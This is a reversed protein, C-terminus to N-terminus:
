VRGGGTPGAAKIEMTVSFWVVHQTHFLCFLASVCVMARVVCVYVNTDKHKRSTTEKEWESM